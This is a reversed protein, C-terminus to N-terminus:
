NRDITLGCVIAPAPKSAWVVRQTPVVRENGKNQRLLEMAAKKLKERHPTEHM